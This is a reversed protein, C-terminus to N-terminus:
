KVKPVKVTTISKISFVPISTETVGAQDAVVVYDDGVETVTHGAPLDKLLVIEYRGANERLTVIQGPRLVALFGTAPRERGQGAASLSGLVVGVILFLPVIIRNM